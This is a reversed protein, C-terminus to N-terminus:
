AWGLRRLVLPHRMEQSPEQHEWALGRKTMQAAVARRVFSGKRTPVGSVTSNDREVFRRNGLPKGRCMFLRSHDVGTEDGFTALLGVAQIAAPVAARAAACFAQFARGPGPEIEGGVASVTEPDFLCWGCVLRGVCLGCATNDIQLVHGTPDRRVM